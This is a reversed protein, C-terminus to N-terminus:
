SAEGRQEQAWPPLMSRPPPYAKAERERYPNGKFQRLDRRDGVQNGITRIRRKPGRKRSM